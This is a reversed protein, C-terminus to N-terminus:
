FGVPKSALPPQNLKPPYWLLWFNLPSIKSASLVLLASILHDGCMRPQNSFLTHACPVGQPACAFSFVQPSKSIQQLNVHLRSEMCLKPPLTYFNWQSSKHTYGRNFDNASWVAIRVCSLNEWLDLSFPPFFLLFFKLERCLFLNKLKLEPLNILYHFPFVLLNWFFLIPYLTMVIYSM